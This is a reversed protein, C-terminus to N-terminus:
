CEGQRRYGCVCVPNEKWAEFQLVNVSVMFFICLMQEAWHKDFLGGTIEGLGQSTAMCKQAELPLNFSKAEALLEEDRTDSHSLHNSRSDSSGRAM